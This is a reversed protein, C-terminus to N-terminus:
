RSGMRLMFIQPNYFIFPQQIQPPLCTCHLESSLGLNFLSKGSKGATKWRVELPAESIDAVTCTLTTAQGSIVKKDTGTM